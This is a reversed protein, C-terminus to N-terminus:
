NVVRPALVSTGRSSPIRGGPPRQTHSCYCRTGPLGAQSCIESRVTGCHHSGARRSLGRKGLLFSLRAQQDQARSFRSQSERDRDRHENQTNEESYHGLM